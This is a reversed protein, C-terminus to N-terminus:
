DLVQIVNARLIGLDEDEDTGFTYCIVDGLVKTLVTPGSKRDMTIFFLKHNELNM